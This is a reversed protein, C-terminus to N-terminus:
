TTTQYVPVCTDFSGAEEMKLIHSTVDWFIVVKMHLATLFELGMDHVGHKSWVM